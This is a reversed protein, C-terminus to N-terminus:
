SHNWFPGVHTDVQPQVHPLLDQQAQLMEQQVWQQVTQASDQPCCLLLEDHITNVLQTQPCQKVIREHLRLMALKLMDAGTAQIPMNRAVRQMHGRDTSHTSQLMLRRGLLSRAYGQKLAQQASNDLYAKLQPHAAFYRQMLQQAQPPSMHLQRALSHNGMGYLLGFTITKAQKRLHTNTQKNVPVGFLRTAVESHLDRNQAFAQLFHEDQSLSAMIRLECAAYDATILLYGQPAQVCRRFDQRTPLNQLNPSHCIARGTNTGLPQWCGHIRGTTPNVHELFHEGYTQTLKALERYQLLQSIMPHEDVMGRLREQSVNAVPKQLLQQLLQKLQQNNNLNFQQQGFLDSKVLAGAHQLVQQKAAHQQQQLQQLVSRWAATDIPLGVHQMRAFAPLVLCELRAVRQLKHQKLQPLLQQLCAQMRKVLACAQQTNHAIQQLWQPSENYILQHLTDLCVPRAVQLNIYLLQLLCPKAQACVFLRSHDAFLPQLDPSPAAANSTTAIVQIHNGDSLLLAGSQQAHATQAALPVLYWVHDSEPQQLLQTTHTTSM